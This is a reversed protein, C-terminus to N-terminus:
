MESTNHNWWSRSSIDEAVSHIFPHRLNSRCHAPRHTHQQMHELLSPHSRAFVGHSMPPDRKCSLITSNPFGCLPVTLLAKWYKAGVHLPLLRIDVPCTFRITSETKYLDSLLTPTWPVVAGSVQSLQAMLAPVLHAPTQPRVLCMNLCTPMKRTMGPSRLRLRDCASSIGKKKGVVRKQPSWVLTSHTTVGQRVYKRPPNELGRSPQNVGGGGGGRPQGRSALFPQPPTHGFDLFIFFFRGCKPDRPICAMGKQSTAIYALPNPAVLNHPRKQLAFHRRRGGMTLKVHLQLCVIHCVEVCTFKKLAFLKKVVFIKEVCFNEVCFKEDCFKQVCFNNHQVFLKRNFFFNTNSVDDDDHSRSLLCFGGGGGHIAASPPDSGTWFVEGSVQPAFEFIM